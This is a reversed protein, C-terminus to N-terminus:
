MHYATCLQQQTFLFLSAALTQTVIAHQILYSNLRFGDINYLCAVLIPFPSFWIPLYPASEVRRMFNWWRAHRMLSPFTRSRLLLGANKVFHHGYAGKKLPVKSNKRWLEEKEKSTYQLLTTSYTLAIKFPFFCLQHCM